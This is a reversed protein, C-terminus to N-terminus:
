KIRRLYMGIYNEINKAIKWMSYEDKVLDEPKIKVKEAPMGMQQPLRDYTDRNREPISHWKAEQLDFPTLYAPQNRERAFDRIQKLLYPAYFKDIAKFWFNLAKDVESRTLGIDNKQLNDPYKDKDNLNEEIEKMESIIEEISKQYGDPKNRVLRQIEYRDAEYNRRLEEAEKNKFSRNVTNQISKSQKDLDTQINDVSINGDSQSIRAYGLAGSHHGERSLYKDYVAKANPEISTAWDFSKSNPYLALVAGGHGWAADEAKVHVPIPKYGKLKPFEKKIESQNHLNMKFSHIIEAITGNELMNGVGNLEARVAAKAEPKQIRKMIWNKSTDDVESFKKSASELVPLINGKITSADVPYDPVNDFRIGLFKKIEGLDVSSDVGEERENADNYCNPCYMAEYDEDYLMDERDRIDSCSSCYDYLEYFCDNHFHESNHEIAEDSSLDIGEGCHECEAGHEDKCLTKSNTIYKYKQNDWEKSEVEVFESDDMSHNDCDEEDCYNTFLEICEPCYPRWTSITVHRYQGRESARLISNTLNELKEKIESKLQLLKNEKEELPYERYSGMLANGRLTGEIADLVGAIVRRNANLEPVIPVLEKLLKEYGNKSAKIEEWLLNNAYNNAVDSKTVKRAYNIADKITKEYNSIFNDTATKLEPLLSKAKNSLEEKVLEDKKEIEDPTDETIDDLYAPEECNTCKYFDGNENTFKEPDRAKTFDQGFDMNIQQAIKKLIDIRKM